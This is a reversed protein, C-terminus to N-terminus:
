VSTNKKPTKPDILIKMSYPETKTIQIMPHIIDYEEYNVEKNDVNDKYNADDETEDHSNVVVFFLIVIFCNFITSKILRCMSM